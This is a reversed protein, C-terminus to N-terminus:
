NDGIHKSHVLSVAPITDHVLHMAPVNKCSLLHWGQEVVSFDQTSHTEFM